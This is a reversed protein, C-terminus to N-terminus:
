NEEDPAFISFTVGRPLLHKFLFIPKKKRSFHTKFLRSKCFVYLFHLDIRLINYFLSNRTKVFQTVSSLRNQPPMHIFLTLLLPIKKM